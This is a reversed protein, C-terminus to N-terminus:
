RARALRPRPPRVGRRPLRGRHAVAPDRDRLRRRAGAPLMILWMAEVSTSGVGADFGYQDRYAQSQVLLMKKPLSYPANTEEPYGNWLDDERFPVPAFKPYTCITGAAVVKALGRPRGAEILKARGDYFYKGPNARNAGIGGVKAALHIVLDPRADDYLRKVASMDVLDYDRSRPVLIEARGRARLQDVVFSGLFGAGRTVVARKHRFFGSESM